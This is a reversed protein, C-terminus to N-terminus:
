SKHSKTAGVSDMLALVDEGLPAPNNRGPREIITSTGDFGLGALAMPEDDQWLVYLDCGGNGHSASFTTFHEILARTSSIPGQNSRCMLRAAARVSGKSLVEYWVGNESKISRGHRVMEFLIQKLWRTTSAKRDFAIEEGNALWATLSLAAESVASPESAASHRAILRALTASPKWEACPVLEFDKFRRQGLELADIDGEDFMLRDALELVPVPFFSAGIGNQMISKDFEHMFMSLDHEDTLDFTRMGKLQLFTGECSGDAKLRVGARRTTGPIVCM